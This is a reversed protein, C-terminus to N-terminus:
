DELGMRAMFIQVKLLRFPPCSGDLFISFDCYRHLPDVSKSLILCFLADQGEPDLLSNFIQLNYFGLCHVTAMKYVSFDRYSELLKATHHM